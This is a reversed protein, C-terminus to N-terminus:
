HFIPLTHIVVFSLNYVVIMLNNFKVYMLTAIVQHSVLPDTIIQYNGKSSNMLSSYWLAATKTVEFAFLM